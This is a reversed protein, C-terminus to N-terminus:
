EHLFGQGDVGLVGEDAEDLAVVRREKGAQVVAAAVVAAPLREHVHLLDEERPERGLEVLPAAHCM